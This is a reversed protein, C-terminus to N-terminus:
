TPTEQPVLVQHPAAQPPPHMQPVFCRGGTACVPIQQIGMTYRWNILQRIMVAKTLGEKTALRGLREHDETSLSVNLNHPKGVTLSIDGDHPDIETQPMPPREQTSRM